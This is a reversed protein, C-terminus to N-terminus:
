GMWLGGNVSLTQGTIWSAEASALFAVASAIDSPAGQRRLPAARPAAAKVQEFEIGLRRATRAFTDDMMDTDVSGPAVANVTINHPALEHALQQTLGVVAFKTACYAGYYAIGMRGATSSINVISGGNGAEIMPPICARCVRYVGNLNIDVVRYWEEDDIEWLARDGSYSKGHNNVVIDIRGFADLADGAIRQAGSEERVDAEVALARRGLAEIEEVVSDLGRWGAAQEDDPYASPSRPAGNVVVDCGERALRLAIGRGIGRMRAAGTVVAVKGSLGEM